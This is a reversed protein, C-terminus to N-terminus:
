PDKSVFFLVLTCLSSLLKHADRLGFQAPQWAAPSLVHPSQVIGRFVAVLQPLTQQTIVQEASQVNNILNGLASVLSAQQAGTSHLALQALASPVKADILATGL